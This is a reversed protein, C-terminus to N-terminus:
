NIKMAWKRLKKPMEQLSTIKNVLQSKTLLSIKNNMFLYNIHKLTNSYGNDTYYKIIEGQIDNMTKHYVPKAKYKKSVRKPKPNYYEDLWRDWSNDAFIGKAIRGGNASRRDLRQINRKTDEQVPQVIAGTKHPYVVHASYKQTDSCEICTYLGLQVRKSDLETSCERCVIDSTTQLGIM